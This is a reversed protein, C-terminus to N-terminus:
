CQSRGQDTEVVQQNTEEIVKHAFERNKAEGNLAFVNEPKGDPIKYIKFWENTAKLYGPFHTEIDAVDNLKAANPDNVNIAIIKWDTQGEDILGIVGLAKVQIIEGRKAIREGIELVDIPDGDGKQGTHADTEDPNEWTQPLAGYNWIYGHHPFVNAVYRLNGKKIDQKIPNLPENLNIEMKANTWRPIEVVMNFIKDKVNSYLPIDHFPSILGNESRFFLRFDPTNPIGKEVTEIKMRSFLSSKKSLIPFNLSFNLVFLVRRQYHQLFSM